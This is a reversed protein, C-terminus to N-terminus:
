LKIIRITTCHLGFKPSNPYRSSIQEQTSDSSLISFGFNHETWARIGAQNSSARIDDKMCAITGHSIAQLHCTFSYLYVLNYVINSEHLSRKKGFHLNIRTQM